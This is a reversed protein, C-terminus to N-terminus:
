ESKCIGAVILKIGTKYGSEFQNEADISSLESQKELYEELLEKTESDINNFSKKLRKNNEQQLKLYEECLLEEKPRIEGNYLKNLIKNDM